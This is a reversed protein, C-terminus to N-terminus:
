APSPVTSSPPLKHARHGGVIHLWILRFRAVVVVMASASSCSGTPRRMQRKLNLPGNHNLDGALHALTCFRMCM